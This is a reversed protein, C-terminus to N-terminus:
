ELRKRERIKGDKESRLQRDCTRIRGPAHLFRRCILLHGARDTRLGQLCVARRSTTPRQPLTPSSAPCTAASASHRSRSPWAPGGLGLLRRRRGAPRATEARAENREREVVGAPGDWRAKRMSPRGAPSHARLSRAWCESSARVLARPGVTGRSGFTACNQADVKRTSPVRSIAIQRRSTM